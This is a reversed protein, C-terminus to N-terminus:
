GNGITYSYVMPVRALRPSSPDPGSTDRSNTTEHAPTVLSISTDRADLSLHARRHSNDPNSRWRHRRIVRSVDRSWCHTQEHLHKQSVTRSNHEIHIPLYRKRIVLIGVPGQQLGTGYIRNEVIVNEMTYTRHKMSFSQNPRLLLRTRFCICKGFYIPSGLYGSLHV